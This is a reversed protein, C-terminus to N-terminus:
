EGHNFRRSYRAILYLWLLWFPLSAYMFGVSSRRLSDSGMGDIAPAAAMLAIAIWCTLNRARRLNKTRM